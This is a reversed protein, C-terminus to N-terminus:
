YSYIAAVAPGRQTDTEIRNWPFLVRVTDEGDRERVEVGLPTMKVDADDGFSVDEGDVLSILTKVPGERDASGTRVNAALIRRIPASPSGGFTPHGSVAAQLRDM